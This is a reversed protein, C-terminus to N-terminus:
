STIFEYVSGKTILQVHIYLATQNECTNQSEHSYAHALMFPTYLYINYLYIDRVLCLRTLKCM